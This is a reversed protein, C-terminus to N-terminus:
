GIGASGAPVVGGLGGTLGGLLGTLLGLVSNLLDVVAAVNGLLDSVSCVLDGLPTGAQGTLSLAIPSLSVDVGLVNVTVPGLAIDLVQCSEAQVPILKIGPAETISSVASRRRPASLERGSVAVIGGSPIIVPWTVEGAVATGVARSGRRLVGQVFGVAVIKDDRQEFRKITVTGTFDGGRSSTGAVQLTVARPANSGQALVPQTSALLGLVGCGAAIGQFRNM